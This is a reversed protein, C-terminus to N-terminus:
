RKKSRLVEVLESLKHAELINYKEKLERMKQEIIATCNAIDAM